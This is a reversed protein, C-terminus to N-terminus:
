AQPSNEREVKVRHSILALPAIAKRSSLQPYNVVLHRGVGDLLKRGDRICRLELSDRGRYKSGRLGRQICVERVLAHVCIALRDLGRQVIHAPNSDIPFTHEDCGSGM